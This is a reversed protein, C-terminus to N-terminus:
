SFRTRQPLFPFIIEKQYQNAPYDISRQHLKNLSVPDGVARKFQGIYPGVACAADQGAKEVTPFKRPLPLFFNTGISIPVAVLVLQKHSFHISIQKLFSHQEIDLLAFSIGNTEKTRNIIELVRFIM